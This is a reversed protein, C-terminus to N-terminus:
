TAIVQLNRQERPEITATPQFSLFLRIHHALGSSENWECRGSHRECMHRGREFRGAKLEESAPVASASQNADKSSGLLQKSGKGALRM